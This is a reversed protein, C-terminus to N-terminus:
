EKVKAIKIKEGSLFKIKEDISSKASDLNFEQMKQGFSEMWSEMEAHASDLEGILANLKERYPAAAKQASAPLKGISDILRQAEKQLKPIKMSKPMAVDHGAIVDNELSDAQAQKSNGKAPVDSEKGNNCGLTAVIAIAAFLFLVKKM